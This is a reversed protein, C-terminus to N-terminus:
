QKMNVLTQMLQDMTTIMKSNAEYGSQAAIMKVFQDSLDVNSEELSGSNVSGMGSTQPKGILAQGSATTQSYMNGDLQELSTPSDFKALIIEGLTKEKGNTFKGTIIGNKDITYSDLAGTPYGDQTINQVAFDSAFQTTGDLGSGGEAISTGYDFKINQTTVFNFSLPGDSDDNVLAGSANFTLKQYSNGTTPDTAETLQGPNAPDPYAYYVQWTNAATKVYYATVTHATSSDYVTATTSYNYNAPDNKVGDGNGDLTFSGAGSAPYTTASSELNLNMDVTSTPQAPIQSVTLTLNGISGTINGNADTQYGQLVDGRSDCINGNKDTSFEGARTYLEGSTGNVVFFGDGEIALDLTNSTTELAGQSFSPSVADVAVGGGVQQGAIEASLVDGFVSRSGKFGVTNENAINNGIVSLDADEANLGSVATYMSSIM